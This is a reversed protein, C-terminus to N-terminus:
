LGPPPCNAFGQQQIQQIFGNLCANENPYAQSTGPPDDPWNDVGVQRANNVRANIEAQLAAVAAPPNPVQPSCAVTLAEIVPEEAAWAANFSTKWEDVHTEEHIAVCLPNIYTAYPAAPTPGVPTFDTIIAACNDNTVQEITFIKTRGQNCVAWWYRSNISVARIQWTDGADVCCATFEGTVTGANGARTLGFDGNCNPVGMGADFTFTPEVDPNPNCAPGDCCPPPNTPGWSGLLQLLDSVDVTGDGNIDAPCGTCPGWSSLLSLLDSVDVVGDCNFDTPACKPQCHSLDPCFVCVDACCDGLFACEEDCWCGAPSQGGCHNECTPLGTGKVVIEVICTGSANTPEYFWHVALVAGGESVGTIAFTGHHDMFPNAPYQKWTVSAVTPDPIQLITYQSVEETIDATIQWIVTEGPTITISPPGCWHAAAPATMGLIAAFTVCLSVAWVRFGSVMSPTTM